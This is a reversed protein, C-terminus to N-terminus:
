FIYICELHEEPILLRRRIINILAIAIGDLEKPLRLHQGDLVSFLCNLKSRYTRRIWRKKKLSNKISEFFGLFM